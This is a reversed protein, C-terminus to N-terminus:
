GTEDGARFCFVQPPSEESESGMGLPSLLNQNCMMSEAEQPGM